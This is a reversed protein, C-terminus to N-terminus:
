VEPKFVALECRVLAYGDRALALRYEPKLKEIEGRRNVQWPGQNRVKHPVDDYFRDDHCLVFVHNDSVSRFTQYRDGAQLPSDAPSRQGTGEPLDSM